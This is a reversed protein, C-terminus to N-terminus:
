TVKTTIYATVLRPSDGDWRLEWVTLVNALRDTREGIGRIPVIVQCHMGYEDRDRVASVPIVRVGGLLSNVLYDLDGATIGLIRAFGEAKRGGKAHDLDLSYAALKERVNYADEARPLSEGIRPPWPM